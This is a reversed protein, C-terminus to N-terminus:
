PKLGGETIVLPVLLDEIRFDGHSGGDDTAHMGHDAIIYVPGKWAGVLAKVYTDNRRITDMTVQSLPGTAHGADDISHFHVMMLDYGGNMKDMASQFIEDDADGSEDLDLHLLPEIETKLIGINGELLIGEKELDLVTKFISPVSLERQERSNVGNVDPWEGTLIAAMGTNTVPSYATMTPIADSLTQMFPISGKEKAERYQQYGFGDLLIILVKRDQVLSDVIPDYLDTISSTPPHVFIGALDDLRIRGDDSIYRLSNGMWQIYGNTCEQIIKGSKSVVAFPIEIGELTNIPIALRRTYVSVRYDTGDKTILSTGELFPTECFGTAFLRGPTLQSINKESSILNFSDKLDLDGQTVVILRELKKVAASPPHFLHIAEWGNENTFVLYSSEIQDGQIEAALGDSSVMLITYRDSLPSTDKIIGQLPIGQYAVGNKEFSQLETQNIKSLILPQTIDGSIELPPIFGATQKSQCGLPSCILILCIAVVRVWQPVGKKM